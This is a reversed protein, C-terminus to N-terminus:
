GNIRMHYVLHYLRFCSVLVLVLRSSIGEREGESVAGDECATKYDRLFEAIAASLDDRCYSAFDTAEKPLRLPLRGEIIWGDTDFDLRPEPSGERPKGLVVSELRSVRRLLYIVALAVNDACDLIRSRETGVLRGDDGTAKRHFAQLTAYREFLEKMAPRVDEPSTGELGKPYRGNAAVLEDREFIYRTSGM